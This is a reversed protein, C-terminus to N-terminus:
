DCPVAGLPIVNPQGTRMPSDSEYVPYCVGTKGDKIVIVVRRIYSDSVLEDYRSVYFRRRSVAEASIMGIIAVILVLALFWWKM